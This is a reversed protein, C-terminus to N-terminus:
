EGSILANIFHVASFDFRFILTSLIILTFIHYSLRIYEFSTADRVSIHARVGCLLLKQTNEYVFRHTGATLMYDLIM